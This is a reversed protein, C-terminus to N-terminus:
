RMWVHEQTERLGVCKGFIEFHLIAARLQETTGIEVGNGEIAATGTAEGVAPTEVIKKEVSAPPAEKYGREVAQKQQKGAQEATKDRMLQRTMKAARAQMPRTRVREPEAQLFRELSPRPQPRAKPQQKQKEQQTKAARAKMIGGIAWLVALVIFVLIQMWGEEDGNAARSIIVFYGAV